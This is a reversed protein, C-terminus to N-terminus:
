IRENETERQGNMVLPNLARSTPKVISLFTVSNGENGSRLFSTVTPYMKNGIQSHIFMHIVCFDFNQSTHLHVCSNM